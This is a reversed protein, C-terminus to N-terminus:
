ALRVVNFHADGVFQEWGFAVFARLTLECRM